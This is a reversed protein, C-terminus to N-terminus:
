LNKFWRRLINFGVQPEDGRSCLNGITALTWELVFHWHTDTIGSSGVTSLCNNLLQVVQYSQLNNVVTSDLLIHALLKYVLLSLLLDNEHERLLQILTDISHEGGLKTNKLNTSWKLEALTVKHLNGDQGFGVSEGNQM